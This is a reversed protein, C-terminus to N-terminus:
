ACAAPPPQAPGPLQARLVLTEGELRDLSLAADRTMGAHVERQARAALDAAADVRGTLIGAEASATRLQEFRGLACALRSALSPGTGAPLAARGREAQGGQGPPPWATCGPLGLLLAVALAAARGERSLAGL